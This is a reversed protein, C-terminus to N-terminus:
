RPGSVVLEAIGARALGITAWATGWYRYIYRRSESDKRSFATAPVAWTGDAGQTRLLYGVAARLAPHTPALGAVRLAYLTEGTSLANSGGGPVFSWGGDPQQQALLTKLFSEAPVAHGMRHELL